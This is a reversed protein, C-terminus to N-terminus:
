REVLLDKIIHNDDDDTFCVSYKCVSNTETYAIFNIRYKELIEILDDM